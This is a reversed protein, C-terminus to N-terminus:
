VFTGLNIDGNVVGAGTFAGLDVDTQGIIWELISGYTISTLIGGFDWYDIFYQNIDRIDVGYVLGALDGTFSTASVSSAGVISKANANLNASLKPNTDREVLGTTALDIFVANGSARTQIASDGGQLATTAGNIYTSGNDTLLWYPTIGSDANIVIQNGTAVLSIASGAVLSKFQLTDTDQGAFLGEGSGINEADVATANIRSDVDEFNSNVKIFAERLDDGTGDNAINGVNISTIAM